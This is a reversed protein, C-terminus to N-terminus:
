ELDSRKQLLSNWPWYDNEDVQNFNMKTLVTYMGELYKSLYM